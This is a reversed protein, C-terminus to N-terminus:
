VKFGHSHISDFFMIVYKNKVDLLNINFDGMLIVNSNTVMLYELLSSWPGIFNEIKVSPARYIAGIIFLGNRADRSSFEVFVADMHKFLNIDSRINHLNAKLSNKICLAVGSSKNRHSSNEFSTYGDINPLDGYCMWTESLCIIDCQCDMESLLLLFPDFNKNISRINQLIISLQNPKKQLSIIQKFTEVTFIDQHCYDSSQEEMM